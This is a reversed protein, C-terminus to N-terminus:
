KRTGKGKAGGRMRKEIESGAPKGALAVGRIKSDKGHSIRLRARAGQLRGKSSTKKVVMFDQGHARM